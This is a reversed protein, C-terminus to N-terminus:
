ANQSRHRYLAQPRVLTSCARNRSSSRSFRSSHRAFSIKFAAEVKKARSSSGCGLRHGLEDIVVSLRKPDLRDATSQLESRRGRPGGLAAPLRVFQTVSDVDSPDDIYVLVGDGDSDIATGVPPRRTSSSAAFTSVLTTIM